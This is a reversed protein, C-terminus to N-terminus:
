GANIQSTRSSNGPIDKMNDQVLLRSVVALLNMILGISQLIIMRELTLSFVGFSTFLIGLLGFIFSILNIRISWAKKLVEKYTSGLKLNFM